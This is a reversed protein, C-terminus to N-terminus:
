QLGGLFEDFKIKLIRPALDNLEQESITLMFKGPVFSKVLRKGLVPVFRGPTQRHGYEVYIAYPVANSIVAIYNTGSKRLDMRWNRRLNGGNKGDASGKRVYYVEGKKHNKSNRKAVRQETVGYYGVPTRKIVRRLLEGALAQICEEAFREKNLQLATLKKQMELFCSIDFKGFEAM